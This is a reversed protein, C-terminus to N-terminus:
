DLVPSMERCRKLLLFRDAGGLGVEQAVGRLVRISM